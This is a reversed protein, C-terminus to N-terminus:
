HGQTAAPMATLRRTMREFESTQNATVDTAFQFLLPDQAAGYSNM